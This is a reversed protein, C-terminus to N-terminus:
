KCVMFACRNGVFFGDIGQDLCLFTDDATVGFSDVGMVTVAVDGVSEAGIMMSENSTM